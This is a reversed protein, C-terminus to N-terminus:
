GIGAIHLAHPPPDPNTCPPPHQPDYFDLVNPWGCDPAACRVRARGSPTAGPLSADDSGGHTGMTAPEPEYGGDALARGLVGAPLVGAVTTGRMLVVAPVRLDLLTVADSSAFDQLSQDAAATVVPPLFADGLRPADRQRHEDGQRPADVDRLDDATLLSVPEGEAVVIAYSRDGLHDLAHAPSEDADLEVYSEGAYSALSM